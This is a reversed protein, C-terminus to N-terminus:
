SNFLSQLDHEYVAIVGMITVGTGLGLLHIWFKTVGNFAHCNKSNLEPVMDVLAIYLFMGAVAAFVWANALSLNGIFLGVLMGIFCLISSLTNYLLAQHVKMGAKLLMAFDGLEHPLEHCFVAISTSMGGVLSSAFAAGIAMGDSFNHLGDGAIVMWAMASITEPVEHLHAHSHGHGHHQVRHDTIIVSSRRLPSLSRNNATALRVQKMLTSPDNRIAVMPINADNNSQIITLKTQHNEALLKDDGDDDGNSPIMNVSQETVGNPEGYTLSKVQLRLRENGFENSGKLSGQVRITPLGQRRWQTLANILREILYFVGIGGLTTLGIWVTGQHGHPEDHSHGKHDNMVVETIAHPLLHLLADGTLSGIALAMFFHLFHQYFYKQIIPIIAVCLIGSVSIVLVALSGYLLAHSNFVKTSPVLGTGVSSSGGHHHHHEHHDGSDSTVCHRESLEYLIVPCIQILEQPLITNRSSEIDSLQLLEVPSLCNESQIPTVLTRNDESKTRSNNLGRKIGDEDTVIESRIPDVRSTCDDTAGGSNPRWLSHVFHAFDDRTLVGNHGYDEFIRQLFFKADVTPSTATSNGTKFDHHHHHRHQDDGSDIPGAVHDLHCVCPVVFVGILHGLCNLTWFLHSYSQKPMM